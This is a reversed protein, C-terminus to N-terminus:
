LFFDGEFTDTLVAFLLLFAGVVDPIPEYFKAKRRQEYRFPM